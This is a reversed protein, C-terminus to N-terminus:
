VIGLHTKSKRFKKMTETLTEEFHIKVADRLVFNKLNRIRVTKTQPRVMLLDKSMLFGLINDRRNEYVPIRSFGEM